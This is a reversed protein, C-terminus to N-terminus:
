LAAVRIGRHRLHQHVPQLQLVLRRGHGSCRRRRSNNGTPLSPVWSDRDRGLLWGPAGCLRHVRPRGAGSANIATAHLWADSYPAQITSFVEAGSRTFVSPLSPSYPLNGAIDDFDSIGVPQAGLPIGKQAPPPDFTIITGDADRLFGRAMTPSVYYYGTVSMSVNISMPYTGFAGPVSFSIYSAEGNIDGGDAVCTLPGLVCLAAAMFRPIM